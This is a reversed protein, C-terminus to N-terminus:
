GRWFSSVISHRMRHQQKRLAKERAQKFVPVLILTLIFAIFVPVFLNMMRPVQPLGEDWPPWWAPHRAQWFRYYMWSGVLVAIGAAAGSWLPGHFVGVILLAILCLIAYFAVQLLLLM